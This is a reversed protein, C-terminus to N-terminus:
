KINAFVDEASAATKAGTALVVVGTRVDVRKGDQQNLAGYQLVFDELARLKAKADAEGKIEKGPANGWVVQAGSDPWLEYSIQAVGQQDPKRRTMVRALGIADQSNEFLASIAAADIIRDDPWFDWTNLQEFQNPSAVPYVVMIRPLALGTGLSEPMVVGLRDVPLLIDKGQYKKPWEYPFTHQSLEVLAIPERYVLDIELGSKSKHVSKVREVYGVSKMVDATRKVLDTDLISASNNIDNTRQTGRTGATAGITGTTTDFETKSIGSIVMQRLNDNVWIPPATLQIKDETLRFEELDVIKRQHREWMFIAGGIMFMTAIVFLTTPHLFLGRLSFGSLLRDLIDEKRRAM